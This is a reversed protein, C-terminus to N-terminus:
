LNRVGYGRGNYLLSRVCRWFRVGPYLIFQRFYHYEVMLMPKIITALSDPPSLDPYMKTDGALTTPLAFAPRFSIFCFGLQKTLVWPRIPVALPRRTGTRAAGANVFIAQDQDGCVLWAAVNQRQIEPTSWTLAGGQFAFAGFDGKTTNFWTALKRQTLDAAPKEIHM